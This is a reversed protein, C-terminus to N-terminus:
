SSNRGPRKLAIVYLPQTHKRRRILAEVEEALKAPIRVPVTQEGYRGSGKSHWRQM